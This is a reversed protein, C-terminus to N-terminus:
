RAARVAKTLFFRVAQESLVRIPEVQVRPSRLTGGVRLHVIRDSLIETARVLLGVPVPGVPPMRQLLLRLVLPNVGPSTTHATVELDLRGQNTVNGQLLLLLLNSDLSMETIRFVGRAYSGRLEGAHFEAAGQGPLVHPVLLRLIPLQLVQADNLTAHVSARLDTLSRVETGSFDIRGTVRGRARTTVEGLMGALSGLGADFLQLAGEIRWGEGHRLNARLQARGHGVQASSERIHLEGQNNTPVWSFDVPARWESVEVGGVKGRMMALSGTGRWETGLNGRLSVDVPGRLWNKREDDVLALRSWDGGSLRIDFWSRAPDRFRYGMSMRLVGGGLLGNTDRLTIGDGSVRLDGRLKDMVERDNWRLNRIEFQGRGIPSLDAGDHRFPLSIAVVGRVAGLRDTLKLTEWLRSLQLREFRLWGHAQDVSGVSPPPYKGELQFRGGLTEGDLRYALSVPPGVGRREGLTVQGRLNQATVGRTSLKQAELDLQGSLSAMSGGPRHEVSWTASVDDGRLDITRLSLAKLGGQVSVTSLEGTSGFPISVHVDLSSRGALEAPLQIDMRRALEGLDIDDLQFRADLTTSDHRSIWGKLLPPLVGPLFRIGNRDAHLELQIPERTPFGILTADEVRGKGTGITETRDEHVLVDLKAKGTVKGDIQRPLKWSPPLETLKLGHVDLDFGLRSPNGRFDLDGVTTITGLASKGKVGCLDVRNDEIVLKGSAERATLDISAIRVTTDWPSLDVRYHVDPRDTWLGVAVRASTRGSAQVQTWVGKPVYPLTELMAQDVLVARSDLRITLASSSRPLNAMVQWSGWRPDNIDGNFEFGQDDGDITGRAGSVAFAPRDRQLLRASAQAITVQYRTRPSEPGFWLRVTLPVRNGAIELHKHLAVPVFPISRFLRTTLAVGTSRLDLHLKGQGFRGHIEFLGWQPDDITGELNDDHEPTLALQAGELSFPERGEQELAVTLDNLHLRPLGGSEPFDPLRTLLKGQSDFRLRLHAQRIAIRQPLRVGRIAKWLSVDVEVTGAELYAIGEDDLLSLGTLRTTGFLGIRLSDITVSTNLLEGLDAAIKNRVVASSLLLRAVIGVGVVLVVLIM